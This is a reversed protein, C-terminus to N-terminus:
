ACVGAFTEFHAAAAAAANFKSFLILLLPKDMICPSLAECGLASSNSPNAEKYCKGDLVCVQCLLLLLLLLLLVQSVLDAAAAQGPHLVVAGGLGLSSSNSPNAKKYCKGDLVCVQRLLLLLM